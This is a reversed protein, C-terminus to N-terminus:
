EPQGTPLAAEMQRIRELIAEDPAGSSLLRKFGSQRLAYSLRALLRLHVRAAPSVMTFLAFVPQGDLAGFPVPQALFCLAVQPEDVKLVIPNRPHPIAIGDGVATSALAERALLLRYLLDRDAELPLRLLNVISYLVTPKDEGTVGRFIGGAQLADAFSPLDPQAPRSQKFFSAPVKMDRAAAWDLFDSRGIYPHGDYARIPLQDDKIWRLVTRESVKLERAIQNISWHM